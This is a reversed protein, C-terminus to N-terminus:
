GTEPINKISALVSVKGVSVIYPNSGWISQSQLNNSSNMDLFVSIDGFLDIGDAYYGNVTPHFTNTLNAIITGEPDNESIPNEKPGVEDDDDGGCSITCLSVLAIALMMWFKKINMIKITKIHIFHKIYDSVRKNLCFFFRPSIVEDVNVSTDGFVM